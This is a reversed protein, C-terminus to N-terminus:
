AVHRELGDDRGDVRVFGLRDRPHSIVAYFGAALGILEQSALEVPVSFEGGVAILVTPQLLHPAVAEVGGRHIPNADSIM